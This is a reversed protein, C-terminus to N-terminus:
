KSLSKNNLRDLEKYREKVEYANLKSINYGIKGDLIGLRM